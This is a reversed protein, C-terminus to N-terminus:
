SKLQQFCSHCTVVQGPPYSGLPSNCYPCITQLVGNINAHKAKPINAITGQQYPGTSPYQSQQQYYPSSSTQYSPPPPPYYQQQAPPANKKSLGMTYYIAGSVVSWIVLGTLCVGLNGAEGQLIGMRNKVAFLGGVILIFLVFTIIEYVVQKGSFAM